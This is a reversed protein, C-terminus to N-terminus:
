RSWLLLSFCLVHILQLEKVRKVKLHLLFPTWQVGTPFLLSCNFCSDCLFLCGLFYREKADDWAVELTLRCMM